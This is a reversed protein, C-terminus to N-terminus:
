QEDKLLLDELAKRVGELREVQAMLQAIADAGTELLRPADVVADDELMEQYLAAAKPLLIALPWPKDNPVKDWPRAVIEDVFVVEVSNEM